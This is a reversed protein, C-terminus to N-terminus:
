ELKFVSCQVSLGFNCDTLACLLQLALHRKIKLGWFSCRPPSEAGVAEPLFVSVHFPRSSM